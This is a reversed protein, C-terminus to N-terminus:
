TSLLCQAMINVVAALAFFWFGSLVKLIDPISHSNSAECVRERSGDFGITQCNVVTSFSQFSILQPACSVLLM